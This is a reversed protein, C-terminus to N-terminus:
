RLSLGGDILLVQGTVYKMSCLGLIAVAVDHPTGTRGLPAMASVAAKLDEWDATWPTDVLGPAVANVRISPGLTNALLATMHSLAAKTAGYPISSGTPREGAISSVNVVSGDGSDRLHPVSAVTVQWTGVVNLDFLRRWVAPNASELDGHPIVETTAANNVLIDLRGFREMTRTVM